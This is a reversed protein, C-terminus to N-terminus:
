IENTSKFLVEISRIEVTCIESEFKCPRRPFSHKWSQTWSRYENDCDNESKESLRFASKTEFILAAPAGVEVVLITM